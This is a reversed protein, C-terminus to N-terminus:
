CDHCAYKLWDKDDECLNYFQLVEKKSYVEIEDGASANLVNKNTTLRVKRM